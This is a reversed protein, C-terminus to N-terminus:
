PPHAPRPRRRSHFPSCPILLAQRRVVRCGGAAGRRGRGGVGRLRGRLWVECGGEGCLLLELDAPAIRGCGDVDLAAFARDVLVEWESSEQLQLILRLLPPHSPRPHTHDPLCAAPRAAGEGM